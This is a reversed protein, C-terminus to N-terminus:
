FLKKFLNEIFVYFVDESLVMGEGDQNEIWISNKRWILTYYKKDKRITIKGSM